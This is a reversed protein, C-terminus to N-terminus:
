TQNRNATNGFLRDRKQLLSRYEKALRVYEQEAEQLKPPLGHFAKVKDELAKVTERLAVIGEEEITLDKIRPGKLEGANEAAALRNRYETIKADLAKTDRLWEDTRAPLDAPAEYLGEDNLEDLRSGVSELERDLYTQLTSLMRMKEAIDFEERTLDAIRCAMDTVDPNLAGLAVSTEALDELVTSDKRDISAEIGSILGPGPDSSSAHEEKTRLHQVVEQRSRHLLDEQEDAAYNAAALDLLAKLTDENREFSPVKNPGYKRHLWSTVYAWNGSDSTAQRARSPFSVSPDVPDM